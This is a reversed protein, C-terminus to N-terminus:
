GDGEEPSGSTVEAEARLAGVVLLLLAASALYGPWPNGLVLEPSIGVDRPKGVLWLLPVTVLLAVAALAFYRARPRAVRDWVAAVLGALAGPWGAFVLGAVVM